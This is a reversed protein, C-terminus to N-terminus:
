ASDCTIAGDDTSTSRIKKTGVMVDEVHWMVRKLRTLTNEYQSKQFTYISVGRKDIHKTTWPAVLPALAPVVRFSEEEKEVEEIETKGALDREPRFGHEVWGDSPSELANRYDGGLDAKTRDGKATYGIAQLTSGSQAEVQVPFLSKAVYIAQKKKNFGVHHVHIPNAFRAFAQVHPHGTSPATEPAACWYEPRLRAIWKVFADWTQKSTPHADKKLQFTICVSRVKLEKPVDM